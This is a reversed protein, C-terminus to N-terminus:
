HKQNLQESNRVKPKHSKPCSELGVCTYKVVNWCTMHTLNLGDMMHSEYHANTRCIPQQGCKLILNTAAIKWGEVSNRHKIGSSRVHRKNPRALIYITDDVDQRYYYYYTSQMRHPWRQFRIHVYYGRKKWIHLLYSIELIIGNENLWKNQHNDHLNSTTLMPCSGVYMSKSLATSTARKGSTSNSTFDNVGLSM